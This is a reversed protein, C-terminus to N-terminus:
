HDKPHYQFFLNTQRQQSTNGYSAITVTELPDFLTKTALEVLKLLPIQRELPKQASRWNLFLYGDNPTSLPAISNQFLSDNWLSSGTKAALVADMAAISSTIIEYQDIITHVGQVKAQLSRTNKKGPKQTPNATLQTWAVLTQNDLSFTGTTYGQQTAIADLQTILSPETKSHETIIVWDPSQTPDTPLLAIAYEGQMLPLIDKRLDLGWPVVLDMLPQALLQSLLGYGATEREVQEALKQLNMGNAVLYSSPPLYNLLQSPQNFAPQAPTLAQSDSTFWATKALIGTPKGQLQVALEQYLPNTLTMGWLQGLQPLNVLAVALPQDTIQQHFAQYEPTSDLNLDSVQANNIAARLVKPHNALLVFKSGVVTTALSHRQRLSSAPPTNRSYILQAGQYPEFVLEAGAIAVKQWYVELLEQSLQADETPLVLLYGPQQGNEKQRDVDSTTLAFLAEGKFWPAIDQQYDLGTSQHLTNELLREVAPFGPLKAGPNSFLSVVLPAQKSIFIAPSPPNVASSRGSGLSRSCGVLLVVCLCLLIMSLKLGM